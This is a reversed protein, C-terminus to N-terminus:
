GARQVSQRYATPTQGTMKKFVRNFTAKSQFGANHALSLIATEAFAPDALLKKVESVRRANVYDYFNTGNSRLMETVQEPGLGAAAALTSLSYHDSQFAGGENMAQDLQDLNQVPRSVVVSSQSHQLLKMPTLQDEADGESGAGHHQAAFGIAGLLFVGFMAMILSLAWYLDAGFAEAIFLALLALFMLAFQLYALGRHDFREVEAFLKKTSALFRSAFALSIAPYILGCVLPIALAWVAAEAESGLWAFGGVYIYYGQQVGGWAFLAWQVAAPVFWGSDRWSLEGTVARMHVLLLASITPFAPGGVFLRIPAPLDAGTASLNLGLCTFATLLAAVALWNEARKRRPRLLLLLLAAVAGGFNAGLIFTM